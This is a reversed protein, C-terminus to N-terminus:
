DDDSVAVKNEGWSDGKPGDVRSQTTEENIDDSEAQRAAVNAEEGDPRKSAEETMDYYDKSSKNERGTNMKGKEQM